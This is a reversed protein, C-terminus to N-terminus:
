IGEEDHTWELQHRELAGEPRQDHSLHVRQLLNRRRRGRGSPQEGTRSILKGRKGLASRPSSLLSARGAVVEAASDGGEDVGSAM